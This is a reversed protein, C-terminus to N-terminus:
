KAIEGNFKDIIKDWAIKEFKPNNPNIKRYWSIIIRDLNRNRSYNSLYENLTIKM